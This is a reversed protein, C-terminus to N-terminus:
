FISALYSAFNISISFCFDFAANFEFLPGFGFLTGCVIFFDTGWGIIFLVGAGALLLLSGIIIGLTDVIFLRTFNDM